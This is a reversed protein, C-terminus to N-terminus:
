STLVFHFFFVGERERVRERERERLTILRFVRVVDARSYDCTLVAKSTQMDVPFSCARTHLLMNILMSGDTLKSM